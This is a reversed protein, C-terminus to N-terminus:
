LPEVEVVENVRLNWQVTRGGQVAVPQTARAFEGPAEAMFQIRETPDAPTRFRLSTTAGARVTGISRRPGFAPNVFIEVNHSDEVNNMVVVTADRGGGLGIAACAGLALALGFVVVVLRATRLLLGNTNM